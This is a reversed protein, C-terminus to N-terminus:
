VITALLANESRSLYGNHDTISDDAFKAECALPWQRFEDVIRLITLYGQYASCCREAWYIM